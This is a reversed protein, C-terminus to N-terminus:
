AHEVANIARVLRAKRGNERVIWMVDPDPDEALARFRPLGVAPDAAVAVSWCYGLAQRLSRVGDSRRQERPRAALTSTVTGCVEVAVAAAAAPRLLGPECIGAVAARQVLPDPDSAWGRALPWLRAPDADGLRQLAMAVGERVRWRRDAALEHLRATVRVDPADALLRGLGVAGTAARFEDASAALEEFWAPNGEDAAAQILELNGRPGPLGSNADLFATWESAPLARLARRYEQRNGM